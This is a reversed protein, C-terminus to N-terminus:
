RALAKFNPYRSNGSSTSRNIILKRVESVVYFKAQVGAVADPRNKLQFEATTVQNATLPVQFYVDTWGSAPVEYQDGVNIPAIPCDAVTVQGTIRDILLPFPNLNVVDLRVRADGDEGNRYLVIGEGESRVTIRVRKLIESETYINRRAWGALGPIKEMVRWGWHPAPEMQMQPMLLTHGGDNLYDREPAPKRKVLWTLVAAFVVVGAGSFLWEKNDWIWNWVTM